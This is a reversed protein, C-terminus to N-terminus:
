FFVNAQFKQNIQYKSLDGLERVHIDHFNIKHGSCLVLIVSGNLMISVINSLSIDGGVFYLKCSTKMKLLRQIAPLQIHYGDTM